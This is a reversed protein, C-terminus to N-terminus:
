EPKLVFPRRDHIDVIGQDSVATITVFGNEDMPELGPAVQALGGYFM